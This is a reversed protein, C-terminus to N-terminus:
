LKKMENNVEGIMKTAEESETLVLREKDIGIEVLEKYITKKAEPKVRVRFMMDKWFEKKNLPVDIDSNNSAFLRGHQRFLRFQYTRQDIDDIYTPVNCVFSSDLDFPNYNPYLLKDYDTTENFIFEHPVLLGWFQGDSNEHKESPECMFFSSHVSSTSLDILNTKIGAHQAQFLLDWDEGFPKKSHKFLHKDGYNEIVKRKFIDVGNKEIDRAKTLDIETSFPPRFIGPLIDWGFNQEGRYHPMVQPGGKTILDVRVKILEEHFNRVDQLNNIEFKELPKLYTEKIHRAIQNFNM